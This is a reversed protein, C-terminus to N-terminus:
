RSRSLTGYFKTNGRQRATILGRSALLALRNNWATVGIASEGRKALHLDRATAEVHESLADLTSRESPDLTGILTLNSLSGGQAVSAIWLADRTKELYLEIEEHVREELNALVVTRSPEQAALFDRLRLIAERIFSATAVAVGTFDLILTEGPKSDIARLAAVACAQRGAQSGALVPDGGALDFMSILM